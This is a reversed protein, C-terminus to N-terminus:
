WREEAQVGVQEPEEDDRLEIEHPDIEHTADDELIPIPARDRVGDPTQTQKEEEVTEQERFVVDRSRVVKGKKPDLLRYGYEEDGYGVFICENAKDDLKSRQEKPVHMCTKYDFIQNPSRM